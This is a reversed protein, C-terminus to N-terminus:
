SDHVHITGKNLVAKNLVADVIMVLDRSRTDSSLAVHDRLRMVLNMLPCLQGWEKWAVIAEKWAVIAEAETVKYPGRAGCHECGVFYSLDWRSKPEGGDKCWPCGKM